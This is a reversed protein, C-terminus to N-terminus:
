EQAGQLLLFRRDPIFRTVKLPTRDGESVTRTALGGIVGTLCTMGNRRTEVTDFPNKGRKLLIRAAAYIPQRSTGLCEGNLWMEAREGYGTPELDIVWHAITM